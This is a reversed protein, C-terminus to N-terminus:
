TYVSETYQNVQLGREAMEEECLFDLAMWVLHGRIKDL